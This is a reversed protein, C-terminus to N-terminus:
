TIRQTRRRADAPGHAAAIMEIVAPVEAADIVDVCIALLRLAGDDGGRALHHLIRGYAPDEPAPGELLGSSTERLMRRRAKRERSARNYGRQRLKREARTISM